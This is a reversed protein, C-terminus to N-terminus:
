NIVDILDEKPTQEILQADIKAAFSKIIDSPYPDIIVVQKNLYDFHELILDNIKSDGCGYGVIVLKDSKRLNEIFHNFLEKYYGEDNYRLIKSTTGSLFDSHYNTFDNEYYLEGDERESERYFNSPSIGKKIKIYNLFGGDSTRFPYNNVSGHLKYLRFRKEYKNSFYELRVMFNNEIRGYFKSGLEDFGTSLGGNLWETYVFSEFLLDHNLSHIHCLHDEGVLELYELFGKYEIPLPKLQTGGENLSKGQNIDLLKQVLQNLIKLSVDLLRWDSYDDTVKDLHPLLEQRFKATVDLYIKSKLFNPDKLFDFFVEYDFVENQSLFQDILYKIFHKSIDRPYIPERNNDNHKKFFHLTGEGDLYFEDPDVKEIKANLQKATPYGYNVSFGAGLLFSIDKTPENQKKKFFDFDPMDLWLKDEKSM